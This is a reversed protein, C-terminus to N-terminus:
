ALIGELIYDLIHKIRKEFISRDTAKQIYYDVMGILIDNYAKIDLDKRIFGLNIGKKIFHENETALKDVLNKVKHEIAPYEKYIQPIIVPEFNSMNKVFNETAQKMAKLLTDKSHWIDENGNYVKAAEDNKKVHDLVITEILQEKSGIIKYLTNRALGAEAALMEINWGKVGYTYLLKKASAYVKERVLENDVKM